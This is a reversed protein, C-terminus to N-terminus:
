ARRLSWSRFAYRFLAVYLPLAVVPLVLLVPKGLRMPNIVLNFYVDWTVYVVAYPKWFASSLFKVDWVHLHLAILAPLSLAVDLASLARLMSLESLFGLLILVSIPWAYINWLIRRM